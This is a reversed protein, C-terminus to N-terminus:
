SCLSVNRMSDTEEAEGAENAGRFSMGAKSEVQDLDEELDHVRPQRKEIGRLESSSQM